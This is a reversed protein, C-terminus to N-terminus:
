PKAYKKTWERAKAENNKRNEMYLNGVSPEVPDDSNPDALLSVISLLVPSVGLASSWETSLIDLCIYGSLAVNCHYVGMRFVVTPPSFPYDGHFVIELRFVGGEYPTGPPGKITVTWHLLNNGILEMLLTPVFAR